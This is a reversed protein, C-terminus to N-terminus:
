QAPRDMAATAIEAPEQQAAAKRWWEGALEANQPVGVGRSYLVGLVAQAASVGRDAAAAFWMVAQGFDQGVGDGNQYLCGLDYQAYGDGAAALPNLLQLALAYNGEGYAAEADELPGASAATTLAGFVALAAFIRSLM